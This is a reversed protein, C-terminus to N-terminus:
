ARKEAMRLLKQLPEADRRYMLRYLQREVEWVSCGKAWKHLALRMSWRIRPHQRGLSVILCVVHTFHKDTVEMSALARTVQELISVHKAHGLETLRKIEHKTASSLAIPKPPPPPAASSLTNSKPRPPPAASSHSSSSVLPAASLKTKKKAGGAAKSEMEALRKKADEEAQSELWQRRERDRQLKHVAKATEGRHLACRLRTMESRALTKITGGMTAETEPDNVLYFPGEKQGNWWWRTFTHNQVVEDAFARWGDLSRRARTEAVSCWERQLFANVRRPVFVKMARILTEPSPLQNGRGGAVSWAAVSEPIERVVPRLLYVAHAPHALSQVVHSISMVEVWQGIRAPYLKGVPSSVFFLRWFQYLAEETSCSHADEFAAFGGHAFLIDFAVAFPLRPLLLLLQTPPM